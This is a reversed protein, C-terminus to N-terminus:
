SCREALLKEYESFVRDTLDDDYVLDLREEGKLGVSVHFVLADDEEMGDFLEVPQLILYLEDEIYIQAIEMFDVDNGDNTTLTLIGEKEDM